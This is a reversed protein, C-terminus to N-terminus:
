ADEIPFGDFALQLRSRAQPDLLSSIVQPHVGRPPLKLVGIDTSRQTLVADGSIKCELPNCTPPPSSKPSVERREAIYGLVRLICVGVQARLPERSRSLCDYPCSDSISSQFGPCRITFRSSTLTFAGGGRNRYGEPMFCSVISFPAKITTVAHVSKTVAPATWRITPSRETRLSAGEM